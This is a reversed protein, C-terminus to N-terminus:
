VDFSIFHVNTILPVYKKLFLSSNLGITVLSLLLRIFGFLFNFFFKNLFSLM